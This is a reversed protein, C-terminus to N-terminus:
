ISRRRGNYYYWDNDTLDHYTIKYQNKSNNIVKICEKINAYRIIVIGVLTLYVLFYLFVLIFGVPAISIISIVSFHNVPILSYLLNYFMSEIIIVYVVTVLLIAHWLKGFNTLQYCM